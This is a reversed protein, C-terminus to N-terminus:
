SIDIAFGLENWEVYDKQKAQFAIKIILKINRNGMNGYNDGNVSLSELVTISTSESGKIVSGSISDGDIIGGYYWCGKFYVWDDGISAKIQQNNTDDFGNWKENDIPSNTDTVFQYFLQFRIESDVSSHNTLIYPDNILPKEPVIYDQECLNGVLDYRVEGSVFVISSSRRLSILWAYSSTALTIALIFLAIISILSKANRKM